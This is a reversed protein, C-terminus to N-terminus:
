SHPLLRAAHTLKGTRSRSVPPSVGIREGPEDEVARLIANRTSSKKQRHDIRTSAAAFAFGPSHTVALMYKLFILTARQVPHSDALNM